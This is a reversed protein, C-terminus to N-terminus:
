SSSSSSSSSSSDSRSLRRQIVRIALDLARDTYAGLQEPTSTVQDGVLRNLLAACCIMAPIKARHCFAAFCPAEMEINKVNADKLQAMWADREERTYDLLAGDLRGQGEYFDDAGYTRGSTCPIRPEEAAAALGEEILGADLTTEFKRTKGLMVMKYSSRMKADVGETTLVVTGKNSGDILRNTPSDSRKDKTNSRQACVCSLPLLLFLSLGPPCGIGGCTGIRIFVVNTAKAHYLLKTIEHLLISMSPMGMGHNVSIVPGM